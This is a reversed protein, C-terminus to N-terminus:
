NGAPRQTTGPTQRAGFDQPPYFSHCTQSRAAHRAVALAGDARRVAIVRLLLQVRRPRRGPLAAAAATNGHRRRRRLLRGVEV